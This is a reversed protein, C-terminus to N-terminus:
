VEGGMVFNEYFSLTRDIEDQRPVGEVELVAVIGMSKPKKLLASLYDSGYAGHESALACACGLENAGYKLFLEYMKLIHSDFTGKWRHCLETVYAEVSSDVSMLCDRYLMVRGRPKSKLAEEFHDPIILPKTSNRVSRHSAVLKDRDYFDISSERIRATLKDGVYGLPVSYRCGDINVLSEPGVVVNSHIGYSSSNELLATFKEREIELIEDPIKGHAQSVSNNKKKLWELCQANLDRDDLFGRGQLFNSKVWKVLNEVSGKQNGSYLYCVDPHFGTEEAFHEFTENWIPKGKDNRGLTVTKM